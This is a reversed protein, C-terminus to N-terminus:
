QHHCEGRSYSTLAADGDQYNDYVVWEDEHRRHPIDVNRDFCLNHLKMCAFVFSSRRSSSFTFPRL